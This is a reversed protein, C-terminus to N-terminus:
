ARDPLDPRETAISKGITIAAELAQEATDYTTEDGKDYPLLGGASTRVDIEAHWKGGTEPQIATANLHHGNHIESRHQRQPM